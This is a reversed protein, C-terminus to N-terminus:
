TIPDLGVTVANEVVSAPQVSASKGGVLFLQVVALVNIGVDAQEVVAGAGEAGGFAAEDGM